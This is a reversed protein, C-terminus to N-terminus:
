LVTEETRRIMSEGSCTPPADCTTPTLDEYIERSSRGELALARIRDDYDHSGVIAKEFISPNSTVGRIGCDERLRQMEGSTLMGRRIFDLWISQGFTQLHLLSNTM